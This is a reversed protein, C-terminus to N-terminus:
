GDTNGGEHAELKLGYWWGYLCWEDFGTRIGPVASYWQDLRHMDWVYCFRRIIPLRYAFPRPPLSWENRAGQEFWSLHSRM